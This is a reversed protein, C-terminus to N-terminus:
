KRNALRLGLYSFDVDQVMPYIMNPDDVDIKVDVEMGVQVSPAGMPYVEWASITKYPAKFSSSVELTFKYTQYEGSRGTGRLGLMSFGLIKAKGPEAKAMREEQDKLMTGGSRSAYIIFAVVVLVVAIGFIMGEM